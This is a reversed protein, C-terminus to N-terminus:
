ACRRRGDDNRDDHDRRDVPPDGNTSPPGGHKKPCAREMDNRPRRGPSPTAPQKAGSGVPRRFRKGARGIDGNASPRSGAETPRNVSNAGNVSPAADVEDLEDEAQQSEDDNEDDENPERIMRNIDAVIPDSEDDNAAAAPAASKAGPFFAALDATALQEPPLSLVKHLQAACFDNMIGILINHMNPPLGHVLQPGLEMIEQRPAYVERFEQVDLTDPNVAAAPKGIVYQFLLKIAALNGNTAMFVLDDAIREMDEKTVRQILAARLQATQRAFPNGPGGSNGPAFRGKSDRGNPPEANTDAQPTAAAADVGTEEAEAQHRTRPQKREAIM